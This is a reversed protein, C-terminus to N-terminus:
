CLIIWKDRFVAIGPHDLGSFSFYFSLNAWSICDMWGVLPDFVVFIHAGVKVSPEIMHSPVMSRISIWTATTSIIQLVLQWSRRREVPLCLLHFLSLREWRPGSIWLNEGQESNFYIRMCIYLCVCVGPGHGHIHSSFSSRFIMSLGHNPANLFSQYNFVLEHVLLSCLGCHGTAVFFPSQLVYFSALPKAVDPFSPM